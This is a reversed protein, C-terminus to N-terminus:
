PRVEKGCHPCKEGRGILNFAQFNAIIERAIERADTLKAGTPTPKTPTEATEPKMTM